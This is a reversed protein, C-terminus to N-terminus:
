GEKGDWGMGDEEYVAMIGDGDGYHWELGEESQCCGKSKQGDQGFGVGPCVADVPAEVVWGLRTRGDWRGRRWM